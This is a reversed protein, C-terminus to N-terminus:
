QRQIEAKAAPIATPNGSSKCTRPKYHDASFVEDVPMGLRAAIAKRVRLYYGTGSVCRSVEALTSGAENAIATMTIDELVLAAKIENRKM